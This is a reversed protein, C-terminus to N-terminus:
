PKRRGAIVQVTDAIERSFDGLAESLAAVSAESSKAKTQRILRSEKVSLLQKSSSDIVAWHASLQVDQAANPEFRVVEIEVQYSPRQTSQWPYWIIRDSRLLASLNQALVRTFNEELPEIWRDHESISFRNQTIRTVLEDRDLYSPFKVPGVGLFLPQTESPNSTAAETEALPTLTFFRSPDPRPSFITCGTTLCALALVMLLPRFQGM